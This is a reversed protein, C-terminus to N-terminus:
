HRFLFSPSEGIRCGRRTIAVINLPIGSLLPEKLFLRRHLLKRIVFEVRLASSGSGGDRLGCYKLLPSTPEPTDCWGGHIFRRRPSREDVKIKEIRESLGHEGASIIDQTILSRERTGSNKRKLPLLCQPSQIPVNWWRRLLMKRLINILCVRKLSTIKVATLSHISPACLKIYDKEM